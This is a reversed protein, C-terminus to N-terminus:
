SQGGAMRHTREGAALPVPELRYGRHYIGTLKWGNRPLLQLKNRLRSVHTDVTRTNLEAKHGWVHELIYDRSLARGANRFLFLALELEKHTLKVSEGHWAVTQRAVDIRYPEFEFPQEEVTRTWLRARRVAATVRAILERRRVPKVVYDDAGQLLIRVVEDEGNRTTVFIVPIPWDVNRRIWRLAQRGDMDAVRRELILLDFTSRGLAAMFTEGRACGTVSHGEDQLWATFPEVLQRDDALLAIRVSKV